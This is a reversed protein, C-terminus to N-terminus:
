QQTVHSPVLSTGRSAVILDYIAPLEVGRDRNLDPNHEKILLAEKVKRRPKITESDLIKLNEEPVFHLKKACHEGVATLPTADGSHEGFRVKLTRGTEGVYTSECEGCKIHYVTGCRNMKDLKDKPNVLSQRLTNWPKHYVSLGHKKFVRQLKESLGRVYPLAIPSPRQGRTNTTRQHSSPVFDSRNPVKLLWDEYDNQKLVRNIHAIEQKIDEDNSIINHARNVLSRVVSRKHEIPHHSLGGLYQDTHTPKRYVTTKTSGDDNVHIKVDLFALKGDVEPECTFKINPDISNIHNQLEELHDEHTLVFTDDVYRLWILPPHPATAIAREEFDEMYANAVLPSVPSGMAAGHTQQYFKGNFMFYTTDLCFELLELLQPVKLLSRDSLTEDRELYKKIVRVADATPISTFLASVDFSILKQGPPVELDKIKGVFDASDKVFHETRGVLPSLVKALYKAVSYTVAGISSVIPRLPRGAKHIKPLGYIRPPQGGTPYLQKYFWTPLESKFTLLIKVLKSRFKETPDKKIPKYTNTDMVLAEMKTVYEDKNLIVTACGKDAPLILISKDEGLSKIALKESKTINSKPPKANKIAKVVESRLSQLL